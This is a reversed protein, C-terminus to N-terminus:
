HVTGLRFPETAIAPKVGQVLDALLRGTGCALTFGLAGHGVNLLLNEYPSPGLIPKGQATAPREGAWVSARGLDGLRPFSDAIRRKLVALRGPEIAGHRAGADVMAAIRVRRGLRAYVIKHHSDTVSVRPGATDAELPLTLSYGKLPYLPLDFGLARALRRSGFGAALVFLDAEVEGRDTLVSRIRRGEHRWASVRHHYLRRVGYREALIRDLGACFKECDGAEESPTYVGGELRGEMGALAPELAICGAADLVRQEAGFAAQYAVLERAEALATPDRYIVLKGPRGHDFDIPDTAALESLAARSLYALSLLEGASRQQRRRTSAALFRAGWRWQDFDLRPRLQLPEDNRLLGGLLSRLVGPGALPAVYSYSLQGGNAYSAERGPEGNRDIVTIEQGARALFYAAALGVVGAGMVCIRMFWGTVIL